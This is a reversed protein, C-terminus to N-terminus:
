SLDSFGTRTSSLLSVPIEVAALGSGNEGDLDLPQKKWSKGNSHGSNLSGFPCCEALLLREM